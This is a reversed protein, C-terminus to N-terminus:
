QAKEKKTYTVIELQNLQEKRLDEDSPTEIKKSWGEAKRKYALWVYWLLQRAEGDPLSEIKVLDNVGDVKFPIIGKIFLDHEIEQVYRIIETDEEVIMDALEHIFATLPRISNVQKCMDVRQAYRKEFVKREM